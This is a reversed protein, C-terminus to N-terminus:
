IGEGEQHLYRIYRGYKSTSKERTRSISKNQLVHTAYLKNKHYGTSVNELVSDLKSKMEVTDNDSVTITTDDAYSSISGDRVVDPLDNVYLLFAPAGTHLGAPSWLQSGM